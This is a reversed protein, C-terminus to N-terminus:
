GGMAWQAALYISVFVSGIFPIGVFVIVANDGFIGPVRMELAKTKWRWFISFALISLLLMLPSLLFISERDRSHLWAWVILPIVLLIIIELVDHFIKQGKSLVTYPNEDDNSTKKKGSDFRLLTDVNLENGARGQRPASVLARVAVLLGVVGVGILMANGRHLYDWVGFGIVYASPLLSFLIRRM